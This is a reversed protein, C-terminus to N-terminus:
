LRNRFARHDHRSAARTFAVLQGIEELPARCPRDRRQIGLLRSAHPRQLELIGIRDLALESIELTGQRGIRAPLFREVGDDGGCMYETGSRSIASRMRRSFACHREMSAAFGFWVWSHFTQRSTFIGSPFIKM